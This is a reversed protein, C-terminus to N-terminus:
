FFNNVAILYDQTSLHNGIVNKTAHIKLLLMLIAIIHLFEGLLQFIDM